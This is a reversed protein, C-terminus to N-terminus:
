RTSSRFVEVLNDIMTPTLVFWVIAFTIVLIGLL